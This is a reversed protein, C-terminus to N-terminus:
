GVICDGVLYLPRRGLMTSEHNAASRCVLADKVAAALSCEISSVGRGGNNEREANTHFIGLVAEKHARPIMM